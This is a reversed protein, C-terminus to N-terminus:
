GEWSLSDRHLISQPHLQCVPNITMAESRFMFGCKKLHCMDVVPNPCNKVAAFKLCVMLCCRSEDSTKELTTSPM